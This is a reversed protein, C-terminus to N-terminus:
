HTEIKSGVKLISKLPKSEDDEGNEFSNFKDFSRSRKRKKMIKHIEEVRDNISVMKKPAKKQQLAAQGEETIEDAVGSKFENKLEKDVKTGQISSLKKDSDETNNNELMLRARSTRSKGSTGEIIQDSKIGFKDCTAADSPSQHGLTVRKIAQLVLSNMMFHFIRNCIGHPQTEKEDMRQTRKQLIIM